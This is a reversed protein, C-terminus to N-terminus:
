TGAPLERVNPGAQTFPRLADLPEALALATHLAHRAATREGAAMACAGCDSGGTATSRVTGNPNIQKLTTM